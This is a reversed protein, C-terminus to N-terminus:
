RRHREDWESWEDGFTRRLTPEECLVVFLHTALFFLCTYIFISLSGYFLAVGALTMGAGIYMPNRVFRYPGRIVLKRPPRVARAHRERHVRLYVRVVTCDGNRDNGHNDGRGAASRYSSATWHGVVVPISRTFLRLVLGIFFTACTVARVLVFITVSAVRM